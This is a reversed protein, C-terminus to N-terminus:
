KLSIITKCHTDETYHRETCLPSCCSKIFLFFIEKPIALTVEMMMRCQVHDRCKIVKGKEYQGGEHLLLVVKVGPFHSFKWLFCVPDKVRYIRMFKRCFSQEPWLLFYTFWTNSAELTLVHNYVFYFSQNRKIHDWM